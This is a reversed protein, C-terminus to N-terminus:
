PAGDDVDTSRAWTFWCACRNRDTSIARAIMTMPATATTSQCPRVALLLDRGDAVLDIGQGLLQLGKTDRLGPRIGLRGGQTGLELGFVIGRPERRQLLAVGHDLPLLV